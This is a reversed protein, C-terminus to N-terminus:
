PHCTLTGPCGLGKLFDRILELPNGHLLPPRLGYTEGKQRDAQRKLKDPCDADLSAVESSM